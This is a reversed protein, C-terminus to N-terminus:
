RRKHVTRRKSAGRRRHTKRRKGGDSINMEYNNTKSYNTNNAYEPFEKVYLKGTEDKKIQWRTGFNANLMRDALENIQRTMATKEYNKAAKEAEAVKKGYNEPAFEEEEFFNELEMSPVNLEKEYLAYKSWNKISNAENKIAKTKTNAESPSSSPGMEKLKSLVYADKVRKEGSRLKTEVKKYGKSLLDSEKEEFNNASKNLVIEPM